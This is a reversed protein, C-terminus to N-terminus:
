ANSCRCTALTTASYQYDFLITPLGHLTDGCGIEGVVAEDTTPSNHKTGGCGNEGLVSKLTSTINFDTKTVVDIREILLQVAKEDPKDRLSELWAEIQPKTFERPPEVEHLAAIEGKLAEMQKAIDAVIVSPMDETSLKHMLKDYQTQKDAIQRKIAANFERARDSEGSQFKRLALAIERQNEPSLVEALYATAANDIYDMKVTGIGCLEKCTYIRYTHGRGTNTTGHMRAGCSCYVLGSCLYGAKRGVQKRTEM